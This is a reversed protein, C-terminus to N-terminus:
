AAIKRRRLIGLGALGAGLLALTMPEPVQTGPPPWNFGAQTFPTDYSHTNSESYGVVFTGLPIAGSLTLDILSNPGFAPIGNAADPVLISYIYIGFNSATIDVLTSDAGTLNTWNNSADGTLHLFSYIDPNTDSATPAMLGRFGQGNLGFSSTGFQFDTSPIAASVSPASDYKAYVSGSQIASAGGPTLVGTATDNPVALILLIPSNSAAQGGENQYISLTIPNFGLKTLEGSYLDHCGTANGTACTTGAGSGIHLTAPDILDAWTPQAGMGLALAGAALGVALGKFGRVKAMANLRVYALSGFLREVIPPFALIM